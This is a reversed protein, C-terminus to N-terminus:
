HGKQNVIFNRQLEDFFSDELQTTYLSLFYNQDSDIM